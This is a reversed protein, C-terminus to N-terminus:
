LGDPINQTYNSNNASHINSLNKTKSLSLYRNRCINDILRFLLSSFLLLHLLSPSPPPPPPTPSPSPSLFPPSPSPSPPPPPPPPERVFLNETLAWPGYAGQRM